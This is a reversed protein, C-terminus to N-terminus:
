SLQPPTFDTLSLTAAVVVVVVCLASPISPVRVPHLHLVDISACGAGLAPTHM